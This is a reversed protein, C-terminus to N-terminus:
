NDVQIKKSVTGDDYINLILNNTNNTERGLIDIKKILKKKSLNLNEILEINNYTECMYDISNLEIYGNPTLDKNSFAPYDHTYRKCNFVPNKVM